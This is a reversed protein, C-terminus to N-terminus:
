DMWGFEFTEGVLAGATLWRNESINRGAVFRGNSKDYIEVTNTYSRQGGKRTEGGVVLIKEGYTVAIHDERADILKMDPLIKSENTTLNLALVTAKTTVSNHGGIILM